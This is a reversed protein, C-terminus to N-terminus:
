TSIIIVHFTISESDDLDLVQLVPGNFHWVESWSLNPALMPALFQESILLGALRRKIGMELIPKEPGEYGCVIVM